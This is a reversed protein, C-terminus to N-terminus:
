GKRGAGDVECLKDEALKLREELLLVTQTVLEMQQMLGSVMTKLEAVEGGSVGSSRGQGAAGASAPPRYPADSESDTVSPLEVDRREDALQSCDVDPRRSETGTEELKPIVNGSSSSSM